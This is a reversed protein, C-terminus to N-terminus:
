IFDLGCTKFQCCFTLDTHSDKEATGVRDTLEKSGPCALGQFWTVFKTKQQHFYHCDSQEKLIKQLGLIQKPGFQM